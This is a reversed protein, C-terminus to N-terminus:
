HIRTGNADFFLPQQAELAVQLGPKLLSDPVGDILTVLRHEGLSLHLRNQDGLQEVRDLVATAQNSTPQDLSVTLHETRLGM